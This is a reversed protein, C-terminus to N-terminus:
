AQNKKTHFTILTDKKIGSSRSPRYSSTSVIEQTLCTGAASACAGSVKEFSPNPKHYTDVCM